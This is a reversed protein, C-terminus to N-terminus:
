KPRKGCWARVLDGFTDIMKWDNTTGHKRLRVRLEALLDDERFESRSRWFLWRLPNSTTVAETLKTIKDDPRLVGVPISYDFEVEDFCEMADSESLGMSAFHKDFLEMKSLVERDKFRLLLKEAWKDRM